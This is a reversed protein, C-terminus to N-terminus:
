WSFSTQIDFSYISFARTILTPEIRVPHLPEIDMGLDNDTLRTKVDELIPYIAARLKDNGRLDKAIVIVTFSAEEDYSRNATEDFNSGGYLVYIAPLRIILQSAQSVLDDIEGHYSSITKCVSSLPAFSQLYVVISDEIQAISYTM